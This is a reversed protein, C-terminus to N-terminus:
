RSIPVGSSLSIRISLNPHSNWFGHVLLFGLYRGNFCVSDNSLYNPSGLAHIFRRAYDEEQFYGIAEGKWVGMSRAGYEQRIHLIKKAIEDFAQERSIEMFSGDPKKKLPSLLRDEHYFLEKAARGKVCIPGQNEPHEGPDSFDVIAGDRIHVDMGCRVGCQRCLTQITGNKIVTNVNM